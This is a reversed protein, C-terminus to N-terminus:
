RYDVTHRELLANYDKDLARKLNADALTQYPKGEKVPDKDFGNFSTANVVYITVEKEGDIIIERGGAEPCLPEATSQEHTCKTAVFTRFHIGRAPDYLFQGDGSKYYGPYAHYAVYGDYGMAATRLDPSDVFSGPQPSDFLIRAHIGPAYRLRIVIASDPASAFAEMTFPEGDRLYSVRATADSINLERRYDTVSEGCAGPIVIRLTGLPQYTESYHGQLRAQLREALPYNEAELAARVAEVAGAYDRGAVDMHALGRDPEGTWLTIDNLTFVATDIGGYVMAGIRGNGIPLAEEFYAAPRDYQLVLPAAAEEVAASPRCGLALLLAPLLTLFKRM